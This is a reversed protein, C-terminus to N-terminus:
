SATLVATASTPSPQLRTGALRRRVGHRLSLYQAGFLCLKSGLAFTTLFWAWAQPSMTLAVTLNGVAMFAMLGAWALGWRRLARTDVHGRVREPVYDVMWGPKLMGAAILLYILTPKVMFYRADHTLLTAGGMVIVLGVSLGLMLEVPRGKMMRWAIQAGGVAIAAASAIWVQGTLHIALFFALTSLFDLLIPRAAQFLIM